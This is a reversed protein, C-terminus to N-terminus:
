AELTNRMSSLNSIRLLMIANVIIGVLSAILPVIFFIIGAGPNYNSAGSNLIVPAVVSAILVTVIYLISAQRFHDSIGLNITHEYKFILSNGIAFFVSGILSVALLVDIDGMWGFLQHLGFNKEMIFVIMVAVVSVPLIIISYFIPSIIKKITNNM